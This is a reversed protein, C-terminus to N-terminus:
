SLLPFLVPTRQKYSEYDPQGGWKKDSRKELLMLSTFLLFMFSWAPSVLALGVRPLTLSPAGGLVATISLGLWVLIEGCYNPHRSYAWLGSDIWRSNQGSMHNQNFRYKQIDSVTEIALGLTFVAIGVYDVVDLSTIAGFEASYWLCFPNIFCWTGGSTWGFFNYAHAKILRDFRFDGGRVVVRYGVFAVLRTCWLMALAFVLQHRLSPFDITSYSWIFMVYLAIDETIDFFMCTGLIESMLWGLWHSGIGIAAAIHFSPAMTLAIAQTVPVQIFSVFFFFAPSTNTFDLESAQADKQLGDLWSRQKAPATANAEAHGNRTRERTWENAEVHSHWTGERTGENGEAGPALSGMEKPVHNKKKKRSSLLTSISANADKTKYRRSSPLPTGDKPKSPVSRRSRRLPTEPSLPM